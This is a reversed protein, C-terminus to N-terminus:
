PYRANWSVESLWTSEQALLVRHRTHSSIAMRRSEPASGVNELGMPLSVLTADPYRRVVVRNLNDRYVVDNTNSIQPRITASTTIEWLNELNSTSGAFLATRTSGGVLGPFAVVGQDNINVFTTASDFDAAPAGVCPFFTLPTNPIVISPCEASAGGITWWSQGARSGGQCIGGITGSSRGVLASEANSSNANWKRIFFSPPSGAARDQSAVEPFSSDNIAAGGYLRSSSGPPSVTHVTGLSDTSFVQSVASTNSGVFAVEGRNNISVKDFSGFPQANPREVSRQDTCHGQHRRM